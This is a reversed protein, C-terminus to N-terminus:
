FAGSDTMRIGGGTTGGHSSGGHTAPGDTTPAYYGGGLAETSGSVADYASGSLMGSTDMAYAGGIAAFFQCGFYLAYIKAFLAFILMVLSFEFTTANVAPVPNISCFVIDLIVALFGFM